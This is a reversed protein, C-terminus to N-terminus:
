RDRYVTFYRTELLKRDPPAVIDDIVGAGYGRVKIVLGKGHPYHQWHPLLTEQGAHPVEWVCAAGPRMKTFLYAGSTEYLFMVRGGKQEYRRFVDLLEHAADVRDKTTHIGKFPGADMLATEDDLPADRYVFDYFRTLFLMSLALAPAMAAVPERTADELIRAALLAFLVVGAAMGIFGSVAGNTSLVAAAVAAVYAPVMVLVVGRVLRADPRAIPLLLPAIAGCYIATLGTTTVAASQTRYLLLMAATTGIAVLAKLWRARSIWAMVTGAVAYPYFAPLTSWLESLVQEAKALGHTQQTHIGWGLSRKVGAVGGWALSPLLLLAATFGGAAFALVARLRRDPACAFLLPVTVLTALACSQYAFIMVAELAGALFLLRDRRRADQEGVAAAVLFTGGALFAMGMANYGANPISYPVITFLVLTVALASSPYRLWRRAAAHIGLAGVGKIVVFHVGRMFLVLGTSGGTVKTFLWVIPWMVIASLQQISIEDVFPRDGLAFRYPLAISFGEDSSDAGFRCRHALALAIGVAAALALLM